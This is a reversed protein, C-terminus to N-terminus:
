VPTTLAWWNLGFAPQHTHHLLEVWSHFSGGYDSKKGEESHQRACRRVGLNDVEMVGALPRNGAIVLKIKPLAGIGIGAIVDPIPETRGGIGAASRAASKKIPGIIM